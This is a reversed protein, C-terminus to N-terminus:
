PEVVGHPDGNTLATGAPPAIEMESARPPRTVYPRCLRVLVFGPALLPVVASLTAATVGAHLVDRPMLVVRRLVFARRGPISFLLLVAIFAALSLLARDIAGAYGIGEAAVMAALWGLLAPLQNRETTSAWLLGGAVALLGLLPQRRDARLWDTVADLWGTPVDAWGLGGRLVDLPSSAHAALQGFIWCLTWLSVFAAVWLQWRPRRVAVQWLRALERRRGGQM